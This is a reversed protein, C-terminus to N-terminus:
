TYEQLICNFSLSKLPTEETLINSLSRAHKTAAVVTKSLMSTAYVM